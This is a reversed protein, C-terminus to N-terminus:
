LMLVMRWPSSSKPMTCLSTWYLARLTEARLELTLTRELAQARHEGQM